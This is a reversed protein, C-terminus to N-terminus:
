KKAAIARPKPIVSSLLEFLAELTTQVIPTLQRGSDLSQPQVGLLWAKTKRGTEVLKALTGLAIKHTSIQPFKSVMQMADLLVVSGPAGGFEVSDIFVLHDYSGNIFGLAREPATEAVVVGPVGAYVLEEALRVGFGDDGYDVNGLGMYCVRGHLLNELQTSLDGILGM